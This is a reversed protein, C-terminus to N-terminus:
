DSLDTGCLGELEGRTLGTHECREEEEDEVDIDVRHVAGDNHIGYFATPDGLFQDGYEEVLNAIARLSDALCGNYDITLTARSTSRETSDETIWEIEFGDRTLNEEIMRITESIEEMGEDTSTWDDSLHHQGYGQQHLLTKTAGPEGNYEDMSVCYGADEAVYCEGSPEIRLHIHCQLRDCAEIYEIVASQLSQESIKITKSM